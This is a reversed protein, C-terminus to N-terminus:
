VRSGRTVRRERKFFLYEEEMRWDMWEGVKVDKEREVRIGMRMPETISGM